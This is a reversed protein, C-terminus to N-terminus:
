YSMYIFVSTAAEYCILTYIPSQPYRTSFYVSLEFLLINFYYDIKLTYRLVLIM